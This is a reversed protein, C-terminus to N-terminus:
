LVHRPAGGGNGYVTSDDGIVGLIPGPGPNVLAGPQIGPPYFFWAEGDATPGSFTSTAANFGGHAGSFQISERYVIKGFEDGFAVATDPYGQKSFGRSPVSVTIPQPTDAYPDSVARFFDALWQSFQQHEEHSDFMLNVFWYGSIAQKPYFTRYRRTEGEESLIFFGHTVTEVWVEWKGYAGADFTGNKTSV